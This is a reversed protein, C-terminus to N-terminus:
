NKDFEVGDIACTVSAVVQDAADLSITAVFVAPGLFDSGPVGTRVALSSANCQYQAPNGNRQFGALTGVVQEAAVDVIALTSTNFDTAYVYNGSHSMGIGAVYNSGSGAPLSITTLFRNALTQTNISKVVQDLNSLDLEYIEAASQSGVFGRTGDPTIAIEGAANVAGLPITAVIQARLPDIVDVSAPGAGLVGSNVCLIAQVGSSATWVTLRTPDFCSTVMLVGGSLTKGVPDYNFSVVTGPNLNFSADLNSSAIFIQGAAAVASATYTIPMPNPAAVGVSNMAGSPLNVTTTGLDFKTVDAPGQATSPDFVYVAEDGGSVTVLATHQDSITLSGTATGQAFPANADLQIVRNTAPTAGALSLVPVFGQDELVFMQDNLLTGGPIQLDVISSGERLLTFQNRFLSASVAPATGSSSTTPAVNTNVPATNSNTPAVSSSSGGSSGSGRCGAVAAIMLISLLTKKM